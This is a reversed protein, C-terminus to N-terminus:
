DWKMEIESNGNKIKNDLDPRPIYNIGKKIYLGCGGKLSSGIQGEYEYYGDLKIPNFLHKNRECHWTESIAVIDFKENMSTILCELKEGNCNLSQITHM